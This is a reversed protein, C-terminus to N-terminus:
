MCICFHYQVLFERYYGGEDANEITNEAIEIALQQIGPHAKCIDDFEENRLTESLGWHSLSLLELTGAAHKLLKLMREPRETPTNSEWWMHLSKVIKCATYIRALSADYEFTEDQEEDMYEVAIHQLPLQVGVQGTVFAKEFAELFATCYSGLLSLRTLKSLDYLSSLPRFLQWTTIRHLCLEKVMSKPRPEGSAIELDPWTQGCDVTFRLNHM